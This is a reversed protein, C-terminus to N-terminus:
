VIDKLLRGVESPRQAIKVGAASLASEKSQVSGRGLTMIAGAHGMKKGPPASRGAIFAVAPKTFGGVKMFDAADEEMSGGVEGIIVVGQTHEDQQFLALVETLTTGPVPDGGLGICTSIGMGAAVIHSCVENILSGSRAIVGINGPQYVYSLWVPIFGLMAEGITAMGPNNPGIVYAGVERAYTRVELADQVPLGDVLLVILKLGAELAEFTADKAFPPPVFIVSAEAGHKEVVEQVTNYVPVGHVQTGGKGPTVGGAINTGAALMRETWFTGENGTIGQVVVRTEKSLLIGM